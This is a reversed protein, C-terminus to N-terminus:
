CFDQAMAKTFWDKAKNAMPVHTLIVMAGRKGTLTSRSLLSPPKAKKNVDVDEVHTSAAKSPDLNPVTAPTTSPPHSPLKSPASGRDITEKSPASKDMCIPDM